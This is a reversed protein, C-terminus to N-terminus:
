SESTADMQHPPIAFFKTGEAFDHVTDYVVPCWMGYAQDDDTSQYCIEGNVVKLAPKIKTQQSQSALAAQYGCLFNRFEQNVSPVLYGLADKRFDRGAYIECAEFAKQMDERNNM